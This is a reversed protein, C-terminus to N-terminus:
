EYEYCCHSFSLFVFLIGRAVMHSPIFIPLSFFCLFKFFFSFYNHTHTFTHDHIQLYTICNQNNNKKKSKNNTKLKGPMPRGGPVNPMPVDEVVVPNTGHDYMCMDGLICYGKELPSFKSFSFFVFYLLSSYSSYFISEFILFLFCILDPSIRYVIQLFIVYFDISDLQICQIASNDM